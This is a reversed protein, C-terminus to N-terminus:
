AVDADGGVHAGVGQHDGRRRFVEIQQFAEHPLQVVQGRGLGLDLDEGDDVAVRVVKGVHELREERPLGRVPRGARRRLGEQGHQQLVVALPLSVESTGNRKPTSVRVLLTIAEPVIPSRFMTSAIRVFSSSPSTRCRLLTTIRSFFEGAVSTAVVIM